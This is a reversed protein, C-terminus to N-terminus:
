VDRIELGFPLKAFPPSNGCCSLKGLARRGHWRRRGHLGHSCSPPSRSGLSISGKCSTEQACKRLFPGSKAISFYSGEQDRAEPVLCSSPLDSHIGPQPFTGVLNTHYGPTDQFHVQIRKRPLALLLMSDRHNDLLFRVLFCFVFRSAAPRQTSQIM